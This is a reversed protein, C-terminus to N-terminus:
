ESDDRKNRRIKVVLYPWCLVVIAGMAYGAVIGVEDDAAVFICSAIALAITPAQSLGKCLLYVTYVTVLCCAAMIFRDPDVVHVSVWPRVLIVPPILACSVLAIWACRKLTGEELM